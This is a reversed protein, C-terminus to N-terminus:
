HGPSGDLNFRHLFQTYSEPGGLGHPAVKDLLERAARLETSEVCFSWRTRDNLVFRVVEVRGRPAVVVWRRKKLVAVRISPVVSGLINLARGTDQAVALAAADGTRDLLKLARRWPKRGAPLPENLETVWLEWGAGAHRNLSKLKMSNATVRMKVNVDPTSCLLYVDQEEFPQCPGELARALSEPQLQEPLTDAIYRCEWMGESGRVM